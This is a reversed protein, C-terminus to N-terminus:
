VVGRSVIKIFFTPTGNVGSRIGSMFDERVRASHAHSTLEHAFRPLDLGLLAAYRTLNQLDLAQQNRFLMNHMAWFRGQAGAAEAAKAALQAHPHMGALPFHRFVFRLREGFYPMLESVAAHARGCFQCEYDGYQVVTAAADAPGCAHDRSGVPLTLLNLESDM